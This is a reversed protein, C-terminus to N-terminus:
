SEDDADEPAYQPPSKGIRETVRPLRHHWEEPRVEDIAAVDIQHMWNDGFDFWYGFARDVKLGLSDLTTKEADGPPNGRDFASDAQPNVTYRPGNPDHLGRGFQFEYLHEEWRDFARFIADHLDALTQDGRIQITRGIVENKKLFEKTVPGGIIFVKLTYVRFPAHSVLKPRRVQREKSM